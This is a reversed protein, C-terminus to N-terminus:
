LPPNLWKLSYEAPANASTLAASLFPLTEAELLSDLLYPPNILVLGCGYLSLRKEVRMRSATPSPFSSASRPFSSTMSVDSSDVSPTPSVPSPSTSTPLQDALFSQMSFRVDLM